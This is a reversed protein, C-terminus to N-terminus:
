MLAQNKIAIRLYRTYQKTQPKDFTFRIRATQRYAICFVANTILRVTEEYSMNDNDLTIFVM